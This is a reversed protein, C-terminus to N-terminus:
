LRGLRRVQPWAAAVALVVLITGIGGSVVSFMAAGAVTMGIGQCLRAVAGSEVKGLENSSEIFVSNVASVRGRLADPTRTQVLVHRVVVSITDLAGLLILMTMSLVMSKSVGFGITGLGYGAVAWLMAPGARKFPPRHALLLSMFLAGIYQGANLWGLGVPNVHLIQEAYVPLLATAGGLVVAVLDLTLAALITKERYVHGMGGLMGRLTFRDRKSPDREGQRPHVGTMTLAFIGCGVATALYVPWATPHGFWREGRHIIWGAALPGFIAAFQFVGSNWTVANPFAESPVILPLLSSRTPGNFSRATGMFVLILYYSWIPWQFYSATAMLGVAIVFGVQTLLLIVKRNYLDAAHGAPLAMVLVPIMRAAAVYGPVMLDHTREWAEWGLAMGFMQLGTAAFVWGAAFRRYNPSRLALYPDHRTAPQVEPPAPQSM